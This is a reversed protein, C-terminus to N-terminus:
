LTANAWNPKSTKIILDKGYFDIIKVELAHLCLQNPLNKLFSKKGGYKGDGIIPHGIEKCHVRLQHTRGTKPRLEVLSYNDREEIIKYFSLCYKGNEDRYVKEVGKFYKKLLPIEIKGNKKTPTGKILALYKKEIQQNQFKKFVIQAIEKNRALLLVGSTDKDLRHLLLPKNDNDFKLHRLASEISFDIKSGGQVAISKPKNLAIINQDKYIISKKLLSIFKQPIEPSKKELKKAPPSSLIEINDGIAISYNQSVRQHNIKVKKCRILKNALNFNFGYQKLLKLLNDPDGKKIKIIIAV